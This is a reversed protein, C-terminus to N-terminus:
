APVFPLIIASPSDPSHHVSQSARRLTTAHAIPEISGLNRAWRPFAGSAIQVRIRHGREFRRAIPWLEIRVRQPTETSALMVRQLGDTVNMSVGGTDVECLRVFFDASAVTSTVYLEAAVPGIIDYAEKLPESTYVLVDSRAELVSNDVSFPATRLAPGGVSPTPNAPDYTYVDANPTPPPRDILRAQPQLYWHRLLAESPPWADFDRWAEAGVVYLRVPKRAPAEEKGLLHRNFWDVADRMGASRLGADEHRWPGITIRSECGSQRLAVFDQLQWPLFVDFWGAVMTIPRKVREISERFSMPAWWPDNASSHEIWDQWFGVREGTVTEDMRSLPLTLWQHPRILSAGRLRAMMFRVIFLPSRSKLGAVMQTWSLANELMFSDGAYTMRSFDSVTVQMAMAKLEPGASASVAWQTYGLYSMGFTAVADRYWRQRKIWALTELGDREEDHHPDFEGSSGFTGRCCQIVVNFGQAALPYATNAALSLTKGYPSRIMVVPAGSRNGLYVDTLLEAGDPMRVKLNRQISVAHAEVVGLRKLALRYAFSYM